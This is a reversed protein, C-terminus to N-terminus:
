QVAWWEHVPCYARLGTAVGVCPVLYMLFDYLWHLAHIVISHTICASTAGMWVYWDNIEIYFDGDTHEGRVIQGAIYPGTNQASQAQTVVNIAGYAWKLM